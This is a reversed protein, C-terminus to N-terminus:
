NKKVREMYGDNRTDVKIIDGTNIFPPVTVEMGNNLRAPKYSAQVTAGKISAEAETVEFEMAIPPIVNLPKGELFEIQYHQNEILYKKVEAVAELPLRLEEYSESDMFVYQDNDAYSFMYERTEVMVKEVKDVPRFRYDRISLDELNRIKTQILAPGKGPTVHTTEEVRFYKGNLKIVMGKRLDIANIM